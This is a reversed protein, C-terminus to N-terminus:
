YDEPLLITTVERSAETIIWFRTGKRDRYVSMLRFGEKLSLENEAADEPCVEGWDGQAHRQISTYVDELQLCDQANASIVTQGLPFHKSDSNNTM